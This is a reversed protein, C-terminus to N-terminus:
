RGYALCRYNNGSLNTANPPEDFVDGATGAIPVNDGRVRYTVIRGTFSDFQVNRGEDDHLSLVAEIAQSFDLFTITPPTGTQYSAPGAVTEESLILGDPLKSIITM